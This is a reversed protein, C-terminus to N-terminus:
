PFGQAGFFQFALTLGLTTLHYIKSGFIGVATIKNHFPRAISTTIKKPWKTKKLAL